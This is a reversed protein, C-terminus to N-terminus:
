KDVGLNEWGEKLNLKFLKGELLTPKPQRTIGHGNAQIFGYFNKLGVDKSGNDLSYTHPKILYNIFYIHKLKIYLKILYLKIM